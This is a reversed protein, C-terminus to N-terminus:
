SRQTTAVINEIIPSYFQEHWIGHGLKPIIVLTSQPIAKHLAKAHDVPFIPDQDGHLVCTPAKIKKLSARHLDHSAKIAFFHHTASEADHMRVFSQLGIERALEEDVAGNPGANIKVNNLYVNMKEELTKPPNLMSQVSKLLADSPKSLKSQSTKGELSDFTARMDPSTALLTLSKTRGPYNAGYIMAVAGGMSAGVLHASQIGYGDLIINVDNALDSLTYPSQKFDITSSSGTDRNDYRIVFFGKDALRECFGQPWLLGQGGSGMILVIPPNKQSGFSETWFHLGNAQVVKQGFAFVIQSSLSAFVLFLVSLIKRSLPINKVVM